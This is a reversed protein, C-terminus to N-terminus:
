HGAMEEASIWYGPNELSLVRLEAVTMEKTGANKSVECM